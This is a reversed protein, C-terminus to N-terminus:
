LVLVLVLVLVLYLRGLLELLREELLSPFLIRTKKRTKGDAYFDDASDVDNVNIFDIKPVPSQYIPCPM